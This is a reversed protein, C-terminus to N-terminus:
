SCGGSKVCFAAASVAITYGEDHPEWGHEAEVPVRPHASRSWERSAVEVVEPPLPEGHARFGVEGMAQLRGWAGPTCCLAPDNGAPCTV